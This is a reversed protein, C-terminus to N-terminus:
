SVTLNDKLIHLGLPTRQYRALYVATPEVGVIAYGNTREEWLHLEIWDLCDELKSFGRTEKRDWGFPTRELVPLSAMLSRAAIARNPFSVPEDLDPRDAVLAASALNTYETISKM